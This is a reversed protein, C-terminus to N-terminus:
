RFPYTLDVTLGLELFREVEDRKIQVPRGYAALLGADIWSYVTNTSVHFLYALERPTFVAKLPLPPTVKESEKVLIDAGM